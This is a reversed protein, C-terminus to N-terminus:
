QPMRKRTEVETECRLNDPIEICVVVMVINEDGIFIGTAHKGVDIDSHGVIDIIQLMREVIGVALFIHHFADYPITGTHLAAADVEDFVIIWLFSM